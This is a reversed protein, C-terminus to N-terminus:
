SVFIVGELFSISCTILWLCPIAKSQKMEGSFCTEVSCPNCFVTQGPQISDNLHTVAMLTSLCLVLLSKPLKLGPLHHLFGMSSVGSIDELPISFSKTLFRPCRLQSKLAEKLYLFQFVDFHASM